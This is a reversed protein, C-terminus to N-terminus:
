PVPRQDDINNQVQESRLYTDGGAWFDANRVGVSVAGPWKECVICCLGEGNVERATWAERQSRRSRAM